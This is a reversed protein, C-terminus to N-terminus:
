AYGEIDSMPLDQLSRATMESRVGEDERRDDDIRTMKHDWYIDDIYRTEPERDGNIELDGEDYTVVHHNETVWAPQPLGQKTRDMFDYGLKVKCGRKFQPELRKWVDQLVRRVFAPYSNIAGSPNTYCYRRNANHYRKHESISQLPQQRAARRQTRQQIRQMSTNMRQRRIDQRMAELQRLLNNDVPQTVVGMEDLTPQQTEEATLRRLRRLPRQTRFPLPAAAAPEDTMRAFGLSVLNPQNNSARASISNRRTQRNTTTSIM